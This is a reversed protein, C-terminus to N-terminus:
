LMIGRFRPLITVLVRELLESKLKDETSDPAQASVEADSLIIYSLIFVTLYLFFRLM